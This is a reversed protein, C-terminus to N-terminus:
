HGYKSSIINKEKRDKVRLIDQESIDDEKQNYTARTKLIM